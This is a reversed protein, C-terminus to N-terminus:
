PRTRHRRVRGWLLEGAILYAGISAISGRRYARAAEGAREPCPGPRYELRPRGTTAIGRHVNGFALRICQREGQRRPAARATDGRGATRRPLTDGRREPGPRHHKM